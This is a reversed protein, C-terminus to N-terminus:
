TTTRIKLILKKWWPLALYKVQNALQINKSKLTVVERDLAKVSTRLGNICEDQVYPMFIQAEIVMQDKKDTLKIFREMDDLLMRKAIEKAREVLDINCAMYPPEYRSQARYEMIDIVVQRVEETENIQYYTSM